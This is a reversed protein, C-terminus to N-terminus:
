AIELGEDSLDAQLTTGKLEPREVLLRALPAVVMQEITPQLPRAGYRADYRARALRQVLAETWTIRTDSAALDNRSPYVSVITPADMRLSVLRTAVAQTLRKEIMRKLARAGLQPHYGEDIIREMAREDVELICRRRVLGDRAFVSQILGRAIERVDERRLKAFPVVRDLRNFFEPKFFKEAAQVYVQSARAADQLFGLSSAAERM